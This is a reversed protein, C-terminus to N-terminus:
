AGVDDTLIDLIAVVMEKSWRTKTSAGFDQLRRRTQHYLEALTRLGDLIEVGRDLEVFLVKTHLVSGECRTIRLSM